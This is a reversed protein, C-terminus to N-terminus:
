GGIKLRAIVGQDNKNVSLIASSAGQQILNQQLTQSDSMGKAQVEAILTGAKREFQLHRIQLNNEGTQTVADALKALLHFVRSSESHERGGQLHGAMQRRINVVRKDQPFLSLYLTRAEENLFTAQQNFYLGVAFFYCLFLCLSACLAFGAPKQWRDANSAPTFGGQLLNAKHAPPEAQLRRDMEQAPWIEAGLQEIAQPTAAAPFAMGTGDPLRILTKNHWNALQPTTTTPLLLYDPIVATLPLALETALALYDAMLTKDIAFILTKNDGSIEGSAIHLTEIPSALEDELLYPLAQQLHRKVGKPLAITRSTVAEGPIIFVASAIADSPNRTSTAVLEALQQRKVPQWKVPQWPSADNDTNPTQAPSGVPSICYHLVQSTPHSFHLILQM